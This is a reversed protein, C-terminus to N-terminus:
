RRGQTTKLLKLVKEIHHPHEKPTKSFISVYDIYVLAYQWNVTSLVVSMAGQFTEPANKLGFPMNIYKYLENYTVFAIKDVKKIDMAIQLYGPSADLAPCLRAEGFSDICQDM